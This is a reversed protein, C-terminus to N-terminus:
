FIFTSFQLINVLASAGAERDWRKWTDFSGNSVSAEIM